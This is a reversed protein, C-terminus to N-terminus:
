DSSPADEERVVADTGPTVHKQLEAVLAAVQNRLGESEALAANKEIVAKGLQAYIEDLTIQM